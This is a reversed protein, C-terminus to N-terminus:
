PQLSYSSPTNVIHVKVRFFSTAHVESVNAVSAVEVSLLSELADAVPFQWSLRSEIKISQRNRGLDGLPSKGKTYITKEESTDPFKM